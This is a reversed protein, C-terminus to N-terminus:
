SHIPEDAIIEVGLQQLYSIDLTWEVRSREIWINFCSDIYFDAKQSSWGNVRALHAAAIKGRGQTYAFGMHKCEHCAPCLATLRVLTQHRLNDDYHWVEHCEVPHKDGQSGCIECRYNAQRYAQQKLVDWAAKSVASRVNSFWCTQPILEITLKPQGFDPKRPVYQAKQKVSREVPLWQSFADPKVGPPIFWQKGNWKAGLQKAADKQAYPVHLYIRQSNSEAPQSSIPESM